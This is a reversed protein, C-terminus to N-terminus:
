ANFFRIQRVFQVRFDVNMLRGLADIKFRESSLWM